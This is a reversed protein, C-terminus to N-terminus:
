VAVTLTLTASKTNDYTSTAKVTISTAIEDTGVHLTTTGPVIVTEPSTVASTIEMTVGQPIYAGTTGEVDVSINTDSGVTYTLSDPLTVGTVSITDTTFAICTYFPSASILAWYHYFFNTRLADPNYFGGMENLQERWKFWRMDVLMAVIKSNVFKDVIVIRNRVEARDVNFLVALADVDISAMTAPTTILILEEMSAPSQAGAFNYAPNPFGANMGYERINKLFAKASAQNTPQTVTVPYTAGNAYAKDLLQNITQYEWYEVTAPIVALKSNILSQLGYPEAFAERLEDYSITVPIKKKFRLAHYASMVNSEYIQFLEKENDYFNYDYITLLNVFTEREYAGYRMPAKKLFAYPNKFIANAVSQWGIMQYLSQVFANRKPNYTGMLDDYIAQINNIDSQPYAQYFMSQPEANLYTVIEDNRAKVPM